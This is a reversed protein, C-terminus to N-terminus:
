LLNAINNPQSSGLTPLHFERKSNLLKIKKKIEIDIEQKVSDVVAKEGELADKILIAERIIRRLPGKDTSVVEMRFNKHCQNASKHVVGQM